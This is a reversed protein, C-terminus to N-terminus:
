CLVYSINRWCKEEGNNLTVYKRSIARHWNGKERIGHQAYCIPLEVSGLATDRSGFLIQKDMFLSLSPPTLPPIRGPHGPTVRIRVLGEEYAEAKFLRRFM